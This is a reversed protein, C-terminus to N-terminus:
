QKRKRLHAEVKKAMENIEDLDDQPTQSYIGGKSRRLVELLEGNAKSIMISDTVGDGDSDTHTVSYGGACSTISTHNAKTAIKLVQNTGHSFIKWRADGPDDEIMRATVNTGAFCTSALTIVCLILIEMRM